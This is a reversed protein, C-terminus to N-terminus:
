RRPKTRRTPTATTPDEPWPHKPYRGRMDARVQAYPGAWFSALDATRALPRQAPSLLELVIPVGALEPTRTWGFAEQLKMRAVPQGGSYDVAASGLPTKIREPALEDLQAAEPWPLLLRLGALVDIRTSTFQDGLWEDVRELLAADSVDPWPQGVAHHLFALRERLAVAARTWDLAVVGNKVLHTRWAQGALEPTIKKVPQASIEIAGLRTIKRGRIKGDVVDLEYTENLLHNGLEQALQADLPVAAYIMADARGQARGLDAIALWEEGSLPSHEPLIAGTGNALLYGGGRKRAIWQPYALAVVVAIADDFSYHRDVGGARDSATTDTSQEARHVIKRLRTAERKWEGSGQRRGARLGSALDAGRVRQGSSILAVVDAAMDAGVFPAASLLARGHPANVPLEAVKRGLETIEGSADTLGLAALTSMAADRAAVPPEDLLRLGEMGPAGWAGAQLMADSLDAIKIDPEGYEVARAASLCRYAVGPAERGARGARQTLSARDAHVTVLGGIGSNPDFRPVRALGLDVVVRVGPVTLSSEALSTSIIIRDEGGALARDQEAASLQGHLPYVPCDMGGLRAQLEQIERVGPAFVLISGAHKERARRVVGAAHDLFDRDVVIAGSRTASLAAPGVDDYIGVEHLAGPVDIIQADLLTATRELDVTASMAIVRLDPRLADQIDLIFATALDTDLDREHIEDIIVAGVGPLEPDSQLMRLLVGPTIFEIASGPQTQGRVRYGVLDGVQQGLLFAIRSAAARAAVRRPQVVIVKTPPSTTACRATNNSEGALRAALVVPVLTTKGSGPPAAIVVNERANAIDALAAAVPLDPPKALLSQIPNM